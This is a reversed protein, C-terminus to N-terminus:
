IKIICQSQLRQKKNKEFIDCNKIMLTRLAKISVFIEINKNKNKFILYFKDKM